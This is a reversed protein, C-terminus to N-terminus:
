GALATYIINATYDGSPQSSSTGIGYDITVTSNYASNSNTYITNATENNAPIGYWDSGVKLGWTGSGQSPATPNTVDISAISSSTSKLAGTGGSTNDKVNISYSGANTTVSLVTSDTTESTSSTDVFQNVDMTKEISSGSDVSMSLQSNVHVTVQATGSNEAYTTLPLLSAGLGAAVGIGAIINKAKIM